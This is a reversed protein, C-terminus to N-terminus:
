CTTIGLIKVKDGHRRHYEERSLSHHIINVLFMGGYQSFEVTKVALASTKVDPKYTDIFASNSIPSYRGIRSPYGDTQQKSSNCCTISWPKLKVQYGIGGNSSFDHTSLYVEIMGANQYTSLYAISVQGHIMHCLFSIKAQSSTRNQSSAIWGLPKGPLDSKMIWGRDYDKLKPSRAEIAVDHYATFPETTNEQQLSSLVTLPSSCFEDEDYDSESQAYIPPPIPLLSHGSITANIEKSLLESTSTSNYHQVLKTFFFSLLDALNQHASYPPHPYHPPADWYPLNLHGANEKAWYHDYEQSLGNRFSLIPLSYASLVEHYFSSLNDVSPTLIEDVHIVLARNEILATRIIKELSKSIASSGFDNRSYDIILADFQHPSHMLHAGYLTTSSGVALNNKVFKVHPYAASLWAIFRSSWSDRARNPTGAGLAFSGGLVQITISSSCSLKLFFERYGRFENVSVNFNEWFQHLNREPWMFSSNTGVTARYTFDVAPQLYSQCCESVLCISLGLIFYYRIKQLLPAMVLGHTTQQLKQIKSRQLIFCFGVFFILNKSGVRKTNTNFAFCNKESCPYIELM